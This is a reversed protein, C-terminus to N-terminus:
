FFPKAEIRIFGPGRVISPPLGFKGETPTRKDVYVIIAAFM